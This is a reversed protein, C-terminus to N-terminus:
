SGYWAGNRLVTAFTDRYWYANDVSYACRVENPWALKRWGGDANLLSATAAAAAPAAAVDGDREAHQMTQLATTNPKNNQHSAVVSSLVSQVGEVDLGFVDFDLLSVVDVAVKGDAAKSSSSSGAAVTDYAVRPSFTEKLFTHLLKRAITIRSFREEPRCYPHTM